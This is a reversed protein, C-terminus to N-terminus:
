LSSSFGKGSNRGHTTSNRFKPLHNEVEVRVDYGARITSELDDDSVNAAVAKPLSSLYQVNGVGNVVVLSLVSMRNVYTITNRFRPFQITAFKNVYLNRGSYKVRANM